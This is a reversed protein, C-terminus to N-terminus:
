RGGRRLNRLRRLSGAIEIGERLASALVEEDSAIEDEGYELVRADNGTWASLAAELTTLQSRWTPEDPDVASPRVVLVDIDSERGAEGRAFSGFVLVAAPRTEWAGVAERARRLLEQRLGALAEIAPAALHERNLRYLKASGAPRRHVVGEVALRDLVKRVGHESGRNALRHVERGTLEADVGALVVLVDGDLTPTVTSLPHRFDM